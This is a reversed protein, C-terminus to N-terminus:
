EESENLRSVNKVPNLFTEWFVVDSQFKAENLFSPHCLTMRPGSFNRIIFHSQSDLIRSMHMISCMHSFTLVWFLKSDWSDWKREREREGGTWLSWRSLSILSHTIVLVNCFHFSSHIHTDTYTHAHTHTHCLFLPFLFYMENESVWVYGHPCWVHVCICLISKAQIESGENGEVVVVSEEYM